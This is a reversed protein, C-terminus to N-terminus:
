WISGKLEFAEYPLASSSDTKGFPKARFKNLNRTHFTLRDVCKAPLTYARLKKTTQTGNFGPSFYNQLTPLVMGIVPYIKGFTPRYRPRLM